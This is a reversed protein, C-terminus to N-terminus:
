LEADIEWIEDSQEDDRRGRSQDRSAKWIENLFSEIERLLEDRAAPYGYFLRIRSKDLEEALRPERSGLWRGTLICAGRRHHCTGPGCSAVFVAQAGSDLAHTLWKPKVMGACPLEIISVMGRAIMRNRADSIGPIDAAHRCMFGIVPRISPPVEQGLEVPEDFSVPEGPLSAQQLGAPSDTKVPEKDQEIVQPAEITSEEQGEGESEGIEEDPYGDPSGRLPERLFVIDTSGDFEELLHPSSLTFEDLLTASGDEFQELGITSATEFEDLGSPHVDSPFPRDIRTM